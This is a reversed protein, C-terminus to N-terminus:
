SDPPLAPGRALLLRLVIPAVLTTVLAMIVVASFLNAVVPPPPDPVSFVGARLAVDAVILEVTGRVSMGTGVAFAERRSLGNWLAPLGAGALKGVFAAGILVLTFLPVHVLASLDVRLGISAFFIPAMFGTTIGSVKVRVGDYTTEDVTQRGFFLGAAFAGLIFHMGLIEALVSYALAAILLLGFAGEASQLRRSFRGVRPFVFLGMVAVVALFLLVKGGLLLLGAFGPLAGTGIMATLAALLIFGLMDDFIAASVIVEGLRTHLRGLDMLMEIAVPVATIALATGLFFSQVIKVPSDPLFAWGLGFGLALPVAVGGAAVGFATAPAEALEGPRMEIGAMLMVFFIALDIIHRLLEEPTESLLGDTFERAQALAVGMLVGALLEGVMAPQGLRVAIEGCFRTAILLVLLVALFEM